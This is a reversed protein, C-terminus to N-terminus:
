FLEPKRSYSRRVMIENENEINSLRVERVEHEEEKHWHSFVKVVFPKSEKENPLMLQDKTQLKKESPSDHESLTNAKKDKKYRCLAVIGQSGEGLIKLVEIPKIKEAAM